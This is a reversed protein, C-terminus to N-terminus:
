VTGLGARGDLSLQELIIKPPFSFLEQRCEDLVSQSRSNKWIEVVQKLFELNWAVVYRQAQEIALINYMIAHTKTSGTWTHNEPISWFLRLRSLPVVFNRFVDANTKPQNRYVVPQDSLVIYPLDMQGVHSYAPQEFAQGSEFYKLFAGSSLFAREVQIGDLIGVMREPDNAITPDDSLAYSLRKYAAISFHRDRMPSRVWLAAVFGIVGLMRDQTLLDGSVPEKALANLRTATLTEHKQYITEPLSKPIDGMRVNNRDWEFFLQSPYWWRSSITGTTKDFRFLKGEANCFHAQYSTPIYHHKSSEPHGM